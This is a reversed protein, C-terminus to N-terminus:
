NVEQFGKVTPQAAVAGKLGMAAGKEQGTRINPWKTPNGKIRGKKNDKKLKKGPNKELGSAKKPSGEEVERERLWLKNSTM